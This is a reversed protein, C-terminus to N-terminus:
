FVGFKKVAETIKDNSEFLLKLLAEDVKHAVERAELFESNEYAEDPTLQELVQRAAESNLLSLFNDYSDFVDAALSPAYHEVMAALSELPPRGTWERLDSVLKQDTFDAEASEIELATSICMLLGSVFLL